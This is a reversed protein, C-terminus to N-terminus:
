NLSKAIPRELLKTCVIKQWSKLKTENWNATDLKANKLSGAYFRTFLGIGAVFPIIYYDQRMLYISAVASLGCGLLATIGHKFNHAYVSGAGPVIASLWLAATPNKDKPFDNKWTSIISDNVLSNLNKVHNFLYATDLIMCASVCALLESNYNQKEIKLLIELAAQFRGQAASVYAWKYNYKDQETASLLEEQINALANRAELWNQHNIASDALQLYLANILPTAALNTSRLSYIKKSIDLQFDHQSITQAYLFNSWWALAWLLWLKKM